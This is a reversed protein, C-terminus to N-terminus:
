RNDVLRDASAPTLIIVPIQRETRQQYVAFDPCMHVLRPWLRNKELSTAERAVVRRRQRGVQVTTEPNVQLNLRWAPMADSGARTAAIVLDARDQMYLVPSVRTIGSKRGIHDLLLVPGGKVKAGVRGGSRRYLWVHAGVFVNLV